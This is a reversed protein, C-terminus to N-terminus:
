EYRLLIMPDVRSARRAPVYAALLAVGGILVIVSILAVPDWTRVGYLLSDMLRTLALAAAVGLFVGILAVRMGQGVVMRRVNQSSAGLAMRIGIEQTRQEVAYAMLGYIGIAALLLAIGAFITLLTMNFDTRATSEVVVQNMSRVHAVPLGGSAALLERQIAENLSHSQVKTRIVWTIPIIGNQLATIGDNMQAVPVYMIPEPDRDLGTDRVDAVVGIIERAPEEFAPGIGKGITIQAGVSDGRPWFKRAM